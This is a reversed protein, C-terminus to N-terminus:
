TFERASRPRSIRLRIDVKTIRAQAVAYRLVGVLFVLTVMSYTTVVSLSGTTGIMYACIVILTLFVSFAVVLARRFIIQMPQRQYFGIARRVLRRANDEDLGPRVRQAILLEEYYKACANPYCLAFIGLIVITCTFASEFMMFLSFFYYNTCLLLLNVISFIIPLHRSRKLPIKRAAIPAISHEVFKRGFIEAKLKRMYGVHKYHVVASFMINTVFDLLVWGLFFVVLTTLVGFVGFIMLDDSSRLQTEALIKTQVFAIYAFLAFLVTLYIRVASMAQDKQHRIHALSNRMEKDLIEARVSDDPLTGINNM